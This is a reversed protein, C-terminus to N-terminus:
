FPTTGSPDAVAFNGVFASRKDYLRWESGLADGTYEDTLAFAPMSHSLRTLPPYYTEENGCFHDKAGADPTDEIGTSAPAALSAARRPLRSGTLVSSKRPTRAGARAKELDATPSM